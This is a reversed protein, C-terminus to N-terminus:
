GEFIDTKNIKDVLNLISKIAYETDQIKQVINEFEINYAEIKDIIEKPAYILFRKFISRINIILEAEKLTLLDNKNKSILDRVVVLLSLDNSLDIILELIREEHEKPLEIRTLKKSVETQNVRNFLEEDIM